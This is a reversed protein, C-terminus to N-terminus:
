SLASCSSCCWWDNGKKLAESLSKQQQMPQERVVIKRGRGRLYSPKLCAGVYEAQKQSLTKSIKKQSQGPGVIRKHRNGSYSPNYSHVM